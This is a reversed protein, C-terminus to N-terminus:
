FSNQGYQLCSTPLIVIYEVTFFQYVLDLM